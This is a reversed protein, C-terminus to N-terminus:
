QGGGRKKAGDIQGSPKNDDNDRGDDKDKGKKKGRFVYKQLEEIHLLAKELKEELQAIYVDREKLKARLKANENKLRSIIQDQRQIQTIIGKSM